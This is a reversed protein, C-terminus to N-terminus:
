PTPVERVRPAVLPLQLTFRTGQGPRSDVSIRGGLVGTVINHVINLGLGSGGQGLRTTFFPDFIKPLHEAAIGAGDDAFELMVRSEDDRWTRLVIEGAPRGAFAHELANNFLNTVVQGLPGPFSDMRVGEAFETRVVIPTNKVLVRVTSLVEDLTEKLDFDRRKASTQDVAVQKFSSVLDAAQTLNRMILDAARVNMAVYGDLQSRRLADAAVDSEFQASKDRLTSAVILANGIPTNLEHAVGAVLSGLAALKETRVLEEQARGLTQLARELESTREAVRQELTANLERLQDEAVKRETIDLVAGITRVPRRAAAEGAFLTLSRTTLWRVQGDRRVIRHEIDFRGDGSPDHARKVAAGVRERDEAYVQGVFKALTVEEDASFGYNSRQEPSWYISDMVQDHDFIGFGAVRVAQNMRYESLLLAEERRRRETVDLLAGVTRVAQPPHQNGDFTTQSRAVVWRLEGDSRLIRHEIDFVGDGDPAHARGIAARVRARDDPHALELYLDGAVPAERRVGCILRMEDSWFLIDARHDHDFIGIGSVFVALRLRENSQRVADDQQKMSTIDRGEAILLEVAQTDDFFPKVSLDAHRLEGQPALHTVELRVTEGRAAGHVAEEVRARQSDPWWPASWYILKGLFRESPTRVNALASQNMDIVRGDTSLIAMYQFAQDFSARFKRELARANLYPTRIGTVFVVQYIVAFAVIKYAHGLLNFVDSVAVYRSFFVEGLAMVFSACALWWYEARQEARARRALLGAAAVFSAVLVWEYGVKLDTLGRGAVFTRPLWDLRFFVLWATLVAVLMAPALAGRRSVQPPWRLAVGLLTAVTVSRAALWFAIAKEPSSESLLDPMGQYSLAHLFDITAVALLGCALVIQDRSRTDAFANWGVAFVLLSVVIALLEMLLHLAAYAQPATFFTFPPLLLAIVLLGSLM